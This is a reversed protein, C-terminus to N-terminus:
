CTLQTKQTWGVYVYTKMSTAGNRGRSKLQQLHIWTSDYGKSSEENSGVIGLRLKNM